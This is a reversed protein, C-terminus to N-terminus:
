IASARSSIPRIGLGVFAAAHTIRRAFARGTEAAAEGREKALDLLFRGDSAARFSPPAGNLQNRDGADLRMRALGAPNELFLRQDFEGLGDLRAADDLRDDDARVAVAELDDSALPAPPRRLPRPQVFDRGDDALEAVVLRELHRQDLIDLALIQVRDLLRLGILPQDVDIAMGLLFQALEDVFGAGM